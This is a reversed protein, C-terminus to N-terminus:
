ALGKVGLLPWFSFKLFIRFKIKHFVYFRITGILLVALSTEKFPWVMPNWGCVWFNSSCVLYITGRLLAVSSTKNSHDCWPIEDVSEFRLVVFRFLYYWTFTSSFLNWKFPWVVPNRRCVWFKSSCKRTCTVPATKCRVYAWLAYERTLFNLENTQFRKPWPVSLSKCTVIVSGNAHFKRKLGYLEFFVSGFSVQPWRWRTQPKLLRGSPTTGNNTFDFPSKDNRMKDTNTSNRASENCM